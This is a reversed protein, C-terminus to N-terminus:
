RSCNHPAVKHDTSTPNREYLDIMDVKLHGLLADGWEADLFLTAAPVELNSEPDVTRMTLPLPPRGSGDNFNFNFIFDESDRYGAKVEVGWKLHPSSGVAVPEEPTPEQALVTAAQAVTCVSLSVRLLLRSITAPRM